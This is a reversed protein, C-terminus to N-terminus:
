ILELMADSEDYELEEPWGVATFLRGIVQAVSVKWQEDWDIYFMDILRQPCHDGTYCIISVGFDDDAKKIFKMKEGAVVPEYTEQSLVPDTEILYNWVSAARRRWDLKALQEQPLRLQIPYPIPEEKMGSPISIKTYDGKDLADYFERKIDLLRERVAKRDMTKLMLKVMDMMRERSFLTTSSRVIELGTVAFDPTLEMTGTRVINGDEDKVPDKDLYVIDENSEAECIYKKKATVIAKYICKERKLFLENKLYGWRNAYALMFEDLKEELIVADMMRCFDTLRYRNYIIRYGDGWVIGDHFMIKVKTLGSKPDVVRNEPDHWTDHAYRNCMRNFCKKSALEEDDSNGFTYREVQEHGKYVIVETGTGQKQRFNEFLDGVKCYFSDTDGHSMRKYLIQNDVDQVTGLYDPNITPVYGFANIFRQDSVVEENLYHALQEITFKILNRGYATISAANDVDYLPFINAGLLGYLSNGLVKYVKQMMDYINTMEHDGAKKAAKMKNKLNARGDFLLRTVKPVIGEKDKRFYVKYRGNHTWPSEILTAREEATMIYDLPKIVKTEPSTNFTMMISPYLSRYDYSVLWEYFGPISYVFAGPYEEKEKLKYAPFVMNNQHLYNMVFGVLMKKSEFVFSFPVHAEAAAAVCLQFMREHLEIKKLLRVDQWNYLIFQSWYNKWSRYGDPLPAKHEGCVKNGIYDLKYSPEETFTYKRYLALFDIVETGAIQLEGKDTMWAKKFQAPLRSLQKLEVGLKEARNAMYTTDYSFNWGSLIAVENRGIESFLQNLLDKETACLVYKGNEKAMEEKVYDEVDKGVGYTIYNDTTSFYITVCNIPYEARHAAPFRGTTEVEIDLFCINIKKMDPKLMGTHEYHKQLFRARPDIDIEAIENHPGRNNNWIDREQRTHARAVYMPKGYIDTMGCPIAGYQGRNPTYFTNVIRQQEMTGDDYWLFLNDTDRDHYIASWMRYQKPPEKASYLSASGIATQWTAQVPDSATTLQEM